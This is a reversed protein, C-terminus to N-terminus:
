PTVTAALADTMDTQLQNVARLLDGALSVLDGWIEAAVRPLSSRDSSEPTPDMGSIVASDAYVELLERRRAQSDSTALADLAAALASRALTEVDSQLTAIATLRAEVVVNGDMGYMTVYYAVLPTRNERIFSALSEIQPGANVAAGAAGGEVVYLTSAPLEWGPATSWSLLQPWPQTFLDSLMHWRAILWTPDVFVVSTPIGAMSSNPGGGGELLYIIYGLQAIQASDSPASLAMRALDRVIGFGDVASIVERQTQECAWDFARWDFTYATQASAAIGVGLVLAAIALVLNKELKM